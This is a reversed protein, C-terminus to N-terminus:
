EKNGNKVTEPADEPFLKIKKARDLQRLHEMVIERAADTANNGYAGTDVLKELIAQTAPIVTLPLRVPKIKRPARGM